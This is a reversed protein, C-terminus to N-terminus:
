EIDFINIKKKKLLFLYAVLSVFSDFVNGLGFLLAIGILSPQWVGCLYLIFAGGYYITNTVVSEFLMYNTKGIGYFTSDFVNQFAYFMYFAFLVIVLKFLKDVEDFNLVNAM